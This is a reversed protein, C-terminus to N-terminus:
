RIVLGQSTIRVKDADTKLFQELNGKAAQRMNSALQPDPREKLAERTLAMFTGLIAMNEYMEQKEANSAQQFEANGSITRRMQAVLPKFHEDPFDVDNYAMYSGAIFAAVAGALDNRPIGFQGELKRYGQLAEAFVREAEARRPQPYQAALKAPVRLSSTATVVTSAVRRESQPSEASSQKGRAEEIYRDNDAIFRNLQHNLIMSNMLAPSSWLTMPVQANVNSSVLAAVALATFKLM